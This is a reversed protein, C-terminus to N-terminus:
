YVAFIQVYVTTSVADAFEETSTVMNLSGVTYLTYWTIYHCTGTYDESITSVADAYEETSTVMDLSSSRVLHGPTREESVVSIRVINGFNFSFFGSCFM